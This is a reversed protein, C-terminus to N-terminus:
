NYGLVKDKCAYNYLKFWRPKIKWFDCYFQPGACLTGGTWMKKPKKESGKGLYPPMKLIYNTALYGHRFFYKTACDIHGPLDPVKIKKKIFFIPLKSTKKAMRDDCIFVKKQFGLSWPLTSSAYRPMM